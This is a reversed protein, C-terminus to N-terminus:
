WPLAKCDEDDPVERCNVEFHTKTVEVWEPREQIIINSTLDEWVEDLTVEEDVARLIERDSRM